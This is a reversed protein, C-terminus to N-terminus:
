NGYRRKRLQYNEIAKVLENKNFDPWLVETFYFETYAIQYLLFNSLRIEGSTRILLDPDPMDNTFLYRKFSEENIEEIGIENKECDKIINKVASVIENRSGYSLAINLHLTKNNKTLEISREVEKRTKDPLDEMNGMMTIKVDNKHLNNLEKFVFEVLLNMLYDIEKKDRNWNETSFAYVSLYKVGLDGCNKVLETVRLAGERHGAKAPLKKQKAWRRNGDMIVAIHEPIKGSLVKEEIM